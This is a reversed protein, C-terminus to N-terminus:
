KDESWLSRVAGASLRLTLASPSRRNFLAQPTYDYM